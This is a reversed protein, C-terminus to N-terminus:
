ECPSTKTSNQKSKWEKNKKKENLWWIYVHTQQQKEKAKRRFNYQSSKTGKVAWEHKM